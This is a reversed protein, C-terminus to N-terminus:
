EEFIDATDNNNIIRGDDQIQRFSDIEEGIGEEFRGQDIEDALRQIRGAQMGTVLSEGVSSLLSSGQSIFAELPNKGSFLSSFFDQSLNNSQKQKTERDKISEPTRGIKGNIPQMKERIANVRQTFM